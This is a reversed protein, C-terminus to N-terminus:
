LQFGAAEIVAINDVESVEINFRDIVQNLTFNNLSSKFSDLQLASDNQFSSKDL